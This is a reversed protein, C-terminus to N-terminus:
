IVLGSKDERFISFFLGFAIQALGTLMFFATADAFGILLNLFKAIATFEYTLLVVHFISLKGSLAFNTILNKLIILTIGLEILILVFTIEQRNFQFITPFFSVLAIILIWIWYKRLINKEILAILLCYSFLIQIQGPLYFKLIFIFFLGIPDLCALILFFLFYRGKYQKFPPILWVIVGTFFLLKSFDAFTM